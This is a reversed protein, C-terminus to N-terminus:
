NIPNTGPSAPNRKLTILDAAVNKESKFVASQKKGYM